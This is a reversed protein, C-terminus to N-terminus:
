QMGRPTITEVETRADFRLIRVTQGTQNVMDQAIGKLSELRHDDGAVLPMWDSGIRAAIIGEDGSPSKAVFAHLAKIEFPM